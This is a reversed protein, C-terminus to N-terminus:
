RQAWFLIRRFPFFFPRRDSLQEFLRERYHALFGPFLDPGLREQYPTLTTGKVWEVVEERSDLVHAYVQLRVTQERFGLSFLLSAYAEPELVWRPQTFGGLAERFPQQQAVEVAALHTPQEFNAPVQVALQGDSTLARSLRDLLERHDPVWHLAANSFIVDWESRGTLNAIDSLAFHLGGGELGRCEELMAPSSDIGLTERASLSRHLEATPEGTGCGLDLVRMGPRPSLLALLDRFPQRRQDRFRDYQEPNWADGSM